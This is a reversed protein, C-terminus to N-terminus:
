ILNSNYEGGLCGTFSGWCGKSDDIDDYDDDEFNGYEVKSSDPMM